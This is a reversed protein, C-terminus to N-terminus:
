EAATTKRAPKANAAVAPPKKAKTAAPKKPKAAPSAAAKGSARKRGAARRGKPSNGVMAARADLLVIAEDLTVTEPTKDGTLTANIGNHSVYPGYRGNKVLIPGGKDPHEGLTKGPDAGFRRGKKPNAIKEAILTVARNLGVTLVDDGDELSAYVKGHKVYPGFRGVGAMIPEGDEPSKGVERPLSLLALAKDLDIDEPAVGKPLSARKPKEPEPANPDKKEGKKRKPVKVEEGLQLYTGFRGGRLTVELNTKPDIGLVKTAQAGAAGPTMQRTYRCEPYNSCGIFAGFRGVKLSLKGNGCQPCQRVDGGDARAPFIHPELLDNLADLVQTIRLEKIDNVAGIFGTWFDELVEKWNIENNSVRDLKEELSATFDYEVYRHFFSELFGVVVRGKDEPILRKKDIRVYGRDQLVQLISAYTSPRGIGLEEMRKVLAAESFRPPPETFHQSAEIAQKDLTENESMAPLRRSEEDESTEDQGEQYLTLFGDFKVVQGTARLDIRRAGNTALIDVTTRELEASEMQSAVARNWILEYLRAQDRDVYKAVEAPTRSPDTPRVAEHAEQANKSKNQYTRPSGPVYEKGYNKGIMSRIDSIAEPAIDIGDTRMYTILGTTEGDIEVGEYLRQALRMAIAPAFGLKRSAEQQMTSTTFPPPPNRRAPKAEVTAVKFAAGELANKLDTAQVGTGIDLRQLKQGDAGTLRAEFADGRPTALKAVISWYEKAVFKEIELERDCVLRLAVSQVRGASRAGPLKRWLVPSLTFGVLYDLARRALYADVLAADIARPHKMAETVSHKTIANFVVREVKQNKLAKKENLAELVHWSIAEGERDPDTALILTDAGKLAHAIDNVRKQSQPDVEWLMKFGNDPDVSGDKAPLDRIHGFSALVEYGPGLYKNITKAKSPSEVVVVKM